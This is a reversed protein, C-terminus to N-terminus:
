PTNISNMAAQAAHIVPGEFVGLLVTLALAILIPALYAWKEPTRQTDPPTQDEVGLYMNKIVRAYYYLSLASNLVGAVSLWIWTGGAQVAAYFMFFKAVFVALPPIGALSLLFIALSFSSIPARRGLWAYQSISKAGYNSEFNDAVIFSGIKSFVYAVTFYLLIAYAYSSGLALGILIYGSQSISSYALLRKFNTQVLAALNGLTMTLLALAAFILRWDLGALAAVSPGMSYFIKVLAAFGMVKSATSLFSTTPYPAGEYTDPLWMHFPVAAVKFGFGAILLIFAVSLIQSGGRELSAIPAISLSGTALYVLSIAYLIIGSSMAGVVFFKIAAEASAKQNKSYATLAYTAVTAAEFVVFLAMLNTAAAVFAMGATAVLVLTYFEFPESRAVTYASSQITVLLASASFVATFFFSYPNFVFVGGVSFHAHTAALLASSLCVLALTVSTIALTSKSSQKVLDQTFVAVVGVLLVLIPTYDFTNPYM